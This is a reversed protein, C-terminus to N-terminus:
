YFNSRSIENCVRKVENLPYISNRGGLRTVSMAGTINAFFLIKELPWNRSLGYVFAGHFIDGAGTSDVNKVKISPMINVKDTHYACGKEELTIIITNKFDNELKNFIKELNDCSEGTYKEAFDKSCVVYNVKKCLDIVEDNVRGADIVSILNKELMKLSMDYEQGDILLIDYEEEIEKISMKLDSPHYALATRSGNNKDVIVYSTTTSHNDSIELHSVDVNDSIFENKINNGAQDNGVVGCFSVNTGWKGLLYAANSAPGGGCEIKESIRNKTNEIPYEDLPLVVDWTAHGLCLIKM